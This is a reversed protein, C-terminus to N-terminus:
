HVRLILFLRFLAILRSANKPTYAPKIKKTFLTRKITRELSVTLFLM